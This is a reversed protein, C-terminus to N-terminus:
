SDRPRPGRPGQGRPDKRSWGSPRAGPSSPLQFGQGRRPERHSRGPLPEVDAGRGDPSRPIPRAGAEPCADGPGCLEQRLIQLNEPAEIGLRVQNGRVRLVTVRINGSITISEHVKRGLVLMTPLEKGIPLKTQAESSSETPVWASRRNGDRHRIPSDNGSANVEIQNMVGMVGEVAAVIAQAVQELYQTPLRGRLRAVGERVECAIDRLALYGSRGLRDEAEEEIATRRIARSAMAIDAEPYSDVRASMVGDDFPSFVV